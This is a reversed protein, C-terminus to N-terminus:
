LLNGTVAYMCSFLILLSIMVTMAAIDQWKRRTVLTLMPYLAYMASLYRSGSLLWTPSLACIIYLWAYAGDGPHVRHSVAGLLGVTAVIAIIQPIWTGLRWAEDPYSYANEVTYKITNIISGFTQGWHDRQYVLFQLPDGAISTNLALYALFGLGVLSVMLVYAAILAIHKNRRSPWIYLAERIEVVSYHDRKRPPWLRLSVVHKLMELFIPVAVLLGLARTASSLAGMAVSASFFRKRAFLVSLLTLMIFLSETYPVSFFVTLPCFLLFRVARRAAREGQQEFVLQYLLYGSVLLCLNSLAIAAIVTYNDRPVFLDGLGASSFITHQLKAFGIFIYNFCRTLLPYLPYFVLHFRADAAIDGTYWNRALGIYHQADWRIWSNFFGNLTVYLSGQIASFFLASLVVIARSILTMAAIWGVVRLQHRMAQANRDLTRRLKRNAVSFDQVPEDWHRARLRLLLKSLPLDPYATESFYRFILIVFAVGMVAIVAWPLFARFFPESTHAVTMNLYATRNVDM